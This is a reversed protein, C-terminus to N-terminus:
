LDGIGDNTGRLAGIDDATRDALGVDHKEIGVALLDSGVVDRDLTVEVAHAGRQPLRHRSDLDVADAVAHHQGARHRARDFGLLGAFDGRPQNAPGVLDDVRDHNAAAVLHHELDIDRFDPAVDDLLHADIERGA